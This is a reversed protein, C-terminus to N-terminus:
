LHLHTIMFHLLILHFTYLHILLSSSFLFLSSSSHSEVNLLSFARGGKKRQRRVKGKAKSKAKSKVMPKIQAQAMWGKRKKVRGDGPSYVHGGMPWPHAFHHKNNTAYSCCPCIFMPCPNLSLADMTKWDVRKEKQAKAPMTEKTKTHSKRLQM